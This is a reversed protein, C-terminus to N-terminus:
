IENTKKRSYQKEENQKHEKTENEPEKLAYVCVCESM